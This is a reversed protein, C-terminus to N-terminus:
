SIYSEFNSVALFGHCSVDVYRTPTFPRKHDSGLYVWCFFFRVVEIKGM